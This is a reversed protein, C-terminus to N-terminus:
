KTKVLKRYGNKDFKYKKGNIVATTSKLYKGKTDVYRVGKKTKKWKFKYAYTQAGNKNFKYGNLYENEVRYGNKRFYYKKGNITAWQKKLYNGKSDVYRTGAKTTKWSFKYAYTQTGNKNFKYGSQYENEIRYGNSRFYYKKGDITAWQKKLYNGKSDVYRTGAKTTKWGAKYPHSASRFGNKGYYIGDVWEDSYTKEGYQPIVDAKIGTFVYYRDEDVTNGMVYCVGDYAATVIGLTPRASLVKSQRTMKKGDYSLLCSDTVVNDNEDTYIPGFVLLGDKTAVGNCCSQAQTNMGEFLEETEFDVLSKPETGNFLVKQLGMETASGIDAGSLVYLTGDETVCICKRQGSVHIEEDKCEKIKMTEPNLQRISSIPGVMKGNGYVGEQGGLLYIGYGNNVMRLGQEWSDDRTKTWKIKKTKPDFTGIATKNNKEDAATFLLKGNWACAGTTPSYESSTCVEEWSKKSIQYRYIATGEHLMQITAYIYGDIGVLGQVNGEYFNAYKELAADSIRYDGEDSITSGPLNLRPYLDAAAGLRFIKHGSGKASTIEIEHEGAKYDKPLEATIKEVTWGKITCKTGDLTLIGTRNGFFYGEVTLTQGNVEARRPVPVTEGDLARDLRFVGGSLCKDTLGEVPLVSGTVRAALKEPTDDPYVASLVAVGGVVMPTAMSTGNWSEYNEAADNLSIKRLNLYENPETEEETYIEFKLQVDKKLYVFEQDPYVVGIKNLGAKISKEVHHIRSEDGDANVESVTLDIAGAKEVYIELYIGKCSTIDAYKKTLFNVATGGDPDTTKMRLVKKGDGAEAITKEVDGNIGFVTEEVTDKTSFDVTCPQGDLSLVSTTDRPAGKQMPVTSMIDVGPAFVDVDRKGYNSFDAIKGEVDHAGVVVSTVPHGTFESTTNGISMNKSDNGASFVTVIGNRGAEEAMIATTLNGFTGGYSNNTVVVNVGAKKATLVYQYARVVADECFEGKANAAKVAMIRANATVGSVGYKNWAGAVIGACHTGHGHDDMPDKTDYKEGEMTVWASNFGYAGGGLKVLEPYDLGKGWMNEKLDEHNYDVGTDIIAVVQESTDVKPTPTDGSCTNWGDVGLGYTTDEGWQLDTYDESEAKLIYNPEAYLVDDRAELEAILEETTLHDSKVLTIVGPVIEEETLQDVDQDVDQDAKQDADPTEAQDVDQGEAQDELVNSVDSAVMLAEADDVASDKELTQEADKKASAQKKAEQASGGTTSVVSADAKYCVIAQGPIFEQGDETDGAKSDAEGDGDAQQEVSQVTEANVPMYVGLSGVVLAAALFRSLWKKRM